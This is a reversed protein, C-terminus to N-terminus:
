EDGSKPEGSGRKGDGRWGFGNSFKGFLFGMCTTIVSVFLVDGPRFCYMVMTVLLIVVTAIIMVMHLSPVTKM